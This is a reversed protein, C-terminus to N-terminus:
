DFFKWLKLTGVLLCCKLPSEQFYKLNSIKKLSLVKREVIDRPSCGGMPLGQLGKGMVRANASGKTHKQLQM